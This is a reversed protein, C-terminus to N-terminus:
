KLLKKKEILKSILSIEELIESRNLNANPLYNLTGRGILSHLISKHEELQELSWLEPQGLARKADM